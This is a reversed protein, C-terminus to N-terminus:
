CVGAIGDDECRLRVQDIGVEALELFPGLDFLQHARTESEPVNWYIRLADQEHRHIVRPEVLDISRDEDGTPHEIRFSGVLQADAVGDVGEGGTARYLCAR